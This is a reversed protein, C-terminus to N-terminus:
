VEATMETDDTANSVDTDNSSVAESMGFLNALDGSILSSILDSATQLLNSVVPLQKLADTDYPCDISKTDKIDPKVGFLSLIPLDVKAKYSLKIQKKEDGLVGCSELVSFLASLQKPDTTDYTLKFPLTFKTDDRGAFVVKEALSGVGVPVEVTNTTNNETTEEVHM